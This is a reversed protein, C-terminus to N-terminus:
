TKATLHQLEKGVSAASSGVKEMATSLQGPTVNLHKSWRKLDKREIHNRQPKEQRIRM